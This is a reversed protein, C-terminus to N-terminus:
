AERGTTDIVTAPANSVAGVGLLAVALAVFATQWEITSIGDPWAVLLAGLFGSLAGVVAKGVRAVADFPTAWVLAFSGLLAVAVRLWDDGTLVGDTQLATIIAGGATVLAGVFAKAYMGITM